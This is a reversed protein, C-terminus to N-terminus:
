DGKKGRFLGSLDGLLYMFGIAFMTGTIMLFIFGLLGTQSYNDVSASNLYNLTPCLELGIKVVM